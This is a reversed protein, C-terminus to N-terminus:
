NSQKWHLYKCYRAINNGRLGAGTGAAGDETSGRENNGDNDGDTPMAGPMAGPMGPMPQFRMNGDVVSGYFMMPRTPDTGPAGGEAGANPMQGNLDVNQGLINTLLNQVINGLPSANNAGGETSAREPDDTTNNATTNRPTFYQFIDDGM